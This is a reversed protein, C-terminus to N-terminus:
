KMGFIKRMDRDIERVLKPDPKGYKEDLEDLYAIADLHALREKALKSLFSSVGRPGAVRKIAALTRKDITITIREVGSDYKSDYKRVVTV